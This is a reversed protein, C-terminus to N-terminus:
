GYNTPTAEGAPGLGFWPEESPVRACGSWWWWWRSSGGGGRGAVVAENGQGFEEGFRAGIRRSRGSDSVLEVGFNAAPSAGGISHGTLTGFGAISACHSASYGCWPASLRGRLRGRSAQSTAGVSNWGGLTHNERRKGGRNTALRPTAITTKALDPRPKRSSKSDTPEILPHLESFQPDTAKNNRIMM